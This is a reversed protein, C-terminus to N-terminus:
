RFNSEYIAIIRQQQAIMARIDSINLALNEYGQATIAFFVLEGRGIQAFKEDINEPTIIFWKVERLNLQDVAPVIPAPRSIEINVIEVPREEIENATSCAALFILSFVMIYKIM